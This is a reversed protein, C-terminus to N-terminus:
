FAAPKIDGRGGSHDIDDARDERLIACLGVRICVSERVIWEIV